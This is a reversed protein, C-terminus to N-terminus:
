SNLSNKILKNVFKKNLWFSHKVISTGFQDIDRDDSDRAHTRMHIIETSSEKPLSTVEVYGKKSNQPKKDIKVGQKVINQYALWEMKILKEQTISPSWFFAKELIREKIDSNLLKDRSVPIFLIKNLDLSLTSDKWSEHAFDKFKIAPFSISEFLTKNKTDIPIVKIQIGLQSFEKIKSSENKFGLLKMIVSRVANKSSLIPANTLKTIDNITKGSFNNIMSLVQLELNENTSLDLNDKISEYKNSDNLTDWLFNIFPQKLAFSREKALAQNSTNPQAINKGTGSTCPALVQYNRESLTHAFGSIVQDKTKFWESSIILEDSSLSWLRFNLIEQTEWNDKNFDHKYFIFLIKNLKSKAHSESWEENVLTQYNIRCIKTREKVALINSKMEKIPSVKLEIGVEKFDPESLNNNDIGFWHKEILNGVRGKNATNIIEKSLPSSVLIDNLSKGKLLRAREIISKENTIDYNFLKKIDSNEM